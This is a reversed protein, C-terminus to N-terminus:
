ATLTMAQCAQGYCLDREKSSEPQVDKYATDDFGSLVRVSQNENAEQNTDNRMQRSSGTSSKSNSRHSRPKAKEDRPLKPYEVIEEPDNRVPSERVPSSLSEDTRSPSIELPKASHSTPPQSQTRSRTRIGEGEIVSDQDLDRMLNKPPMRKSRYNKSTIALSDSAVSPSSCNIRVVITGNTSVERSFIQITQYSGM